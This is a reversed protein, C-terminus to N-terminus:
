KRYKRKPNRSTHYVASILITKQSEYVKYVIVYPFTDVVAEHFAGRKRGYILPKSQIIELKLEVAREFRVGLGSLQDNYWRYAEEYEKEAVPHFVLQYPM